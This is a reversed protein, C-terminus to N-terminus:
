TCVVPRSWKEKILLGEHLSIHRSPSSEVHRGSSSFTRSGTIANFVTPHLIQLSLTSLGRPRTHCTFIVDKLVLLHYFTVCAFVPVVFCTSCQRLSLVINQFLTSTIDLPYKHLSQQVESSFSGSLDLSSAFISTRIFTFWVILVLSSFSSSHWVPSLSSLFVSSSISFFTASANSSACSLYFLFKFMMTDLKGSLMFSVGSSLIFSSMAIIPFITPFIESTGSFSISLLTLNPCTLTPFFLLGFSCLSSTLLSFDFFLVIFFTYWNFVPM